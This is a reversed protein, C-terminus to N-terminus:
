KVIVTRLRLWAAINGTKYYYPKGTNPDVDKDNNEDDDELVNEYKHLPVLAGCPKKTEEKTVKQLGMYDDYRGFKPEGDSERLSLYIEKENKGWAYIGAKGPTYKMYINDIWEQKVDSDFDGYKTWCKEKFCIGLFEAYCVCIKWSDTGQLSGKLFHTNYGYVTNNKVKSWLVKNLNSPAKSKKHVLIYLQAYPGHPCDNGELNDIMWVAEIVLIEDGPNGWIWNASEDGATANYIGTTYDYNNAFGVPQFSVSVSGIALWGAFGIVAFGDYCEDGIEYPTNQPLLGSEQPNIFANISNTTPIDRCLQGSPVCGALCGVKKEECCVDSCLGGCNQDTPCFKGGGCYNYVQGKYKSNLCYGDNECFTNNYCITDSFGLIGTHCVEWGPPLCLPQGNFEECTYSTPCCIDKCVVAGKSCCQKQGNSFTKCEYKSSCCQNGCVISDPQCCQKQGNEFTKCEYGTFCCSTECPIPAFLPCCQPNSNTCKEIASCFDGNACEIANDPICKKKGCYTVSPCWEIVSNGWCYEAGIPICVNKAGDHICQTNYSCCKDGCLVTQDPACCQKNAGEKVCEMGPPCAPGAGCPKWGIPDCSNNEKNYFKGKNCYQGNGIYEAGQPICVKGIDVNKLCQWDSPCCLESCDKNVNFIACCTGNKCYTGPECFKNNGCPESGIKICLSLNGDFCYEDAICWVSGCPTTNPPVCKKGFIANVCIYYDPCCIHGCLQPSNQSCCIIKGPEGTCVTGGPCSQGNGCYDGNKPYCIALGDTACAMGAACLIGNCWVATKPKCISNEKDVCKEESYCCTEGCEISQDKPCCSPCVQWNECWKEEGCYILGKPKCYFKNLDKDFYCDEKVKDCLLDKDCYIKDNPTCYYDNGDQYCTEKDKLCFVNNGCYNKDEPVCEYSEIDQVFYCEGKLCSIGNGCYDMNDPVCLTFNDEAVCACNEPFCQGNCNIPMSLPCCLSDDVCVFGENCVGIKGCLIVKPIDATTFIDQSYTEADDQADADNITFVSDGNKLADGTDDSEIADNSQLSDNIDNQVFITDIFIQSDKSSVIDEASNADNNKAIESKIADNLQLSDNIDNQVFITDVFIQSDKSSVIDETNNADNNKATETRTENQCSLMLLIFFMVYRHKTM